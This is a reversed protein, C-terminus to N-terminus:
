SDTERTTGHTFPIRTLGNHVASFTQSRTSTNLPTNSLKYRPWPSDKRATIRRCTIASSIYLKQWVGWGCRRGSAPRWAGKRLCRQSAREKRRPDPEEHAASVWIASRRTDPQAACRRRLACPIWRPSRPPPIIRTTIREWPTGTPCFTSLPLICSWRLAWYEQVVHLEVTAELSGSLNWGLHHSRTKICIEPTKHTWLDFSFFFFNLSFGFHWLALKRLVDNTIVPTRLRSLPRIISGFSFYNSQKNHSITRLTQTDVIILKSRGVQHIITFSGNWRFDDGWRCLDAHRKKLPEAALFLSSICFKVWDAM